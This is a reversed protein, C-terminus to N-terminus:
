PYAYAIAGVLESIKKSRSHYPWQIRPETADIMLNKCGAFYAEFRKVEETFHCKPAHGLQNLMNGLIDLGITQNRKANSADM